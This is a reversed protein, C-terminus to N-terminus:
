VSQARMRMQLISIDGMLKPESPVQRSRNMTWFILPTECNGNFCILIERVYVKRRKFSKGWSGEVEHRTNHLTRKIFPKRGNLPLPAAPIHNSGNEQWSEIIM